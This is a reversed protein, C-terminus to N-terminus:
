PMCQILHRRALTLGAKVKDLSGQWVPDEGEIALSGEYELEHLHDVLRRWDISGLGPLRYRWWGGSPRLISCDQRRLDFVEADRAHIHFIKEAYDTLAALPDIGLWVLHAPDLALGVAPSRVHTFLKEWLEPSFAANGPLDEFQWGVMPSNEIALRVGAAEAQEIIPGLRRAFEAICDGLPMSPDRGVLLCVVEIGLTAATEVLLRYHSLITDRKAADPELPNAYWALASPRLHAKDLATLFADRGPGDLGALNLATQQYWSSGGRVPPCQIEVTEFGAEGAWRLAEPLSIEQLCSTCLGLRV